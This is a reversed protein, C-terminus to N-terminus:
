PDAEPRDRGESGSLLSSLVARLREFPDQGPILSVAGVGELPEPPRGIGDWRTHGIGFFRTETGPYLIWVSRTGPIADRYTHMKYLDVSRFGRRGEDDEDNEDMLLAPPELRFKADFLHLGAGPITLTVDPRLTVSYSCRKSPRFSRNYVLSTGDPWSVQFERYVALQATRREPADARSPPGLIEEAGRVLTFFCWLEYLEAVDRAELLRRVLERDLPVRAALRLRSFHQFVQRYGRRRQLVTSSAPLHIMPGVESWMRHRLFPALIRPLRACDALTRRAFPDPLELCAVAMQDLIADLVQLFSKVFRNEATDLTSFTRREEVREPLHGRLALAIPTAAQRGSARVVPGSQSVLRELTRPDIGRARELRESVLEQRLRRHPDALICNLAPLLREDRPAADSLIYRVYVFISYLLDERAAVSRDYPLAASEGGR